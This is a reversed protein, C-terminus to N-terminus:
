QLTRQKADETKPNSLRVHLERLQPCDRGLMAYLSAPRFDEYLFQRWYVKLIELSSPFCFGPVGVMLPMSWERHRLDGRMKGNYVTASLHRLNPLNASVFAYDHAIHQDVPSLFVGLLPSIFGAIELRSVKENDVHFTSQPSLWGTSVGELTLTELKPFDQLFSVVSRLEGINFQTLFLRKLSNACASVITQPFENEWTTRGRRECSNGNIEVDEWPCETLTKLVSRQSPEEFSRHNTSTMVLKSLRPRQRIGEFLIDKPLKSERDVKERKDPSMRWVRRRPTMVLTKSCRRASDRLAKSIQELAHFSKACSQRVKKTIIDLLEFPLRDFTPELGRAM